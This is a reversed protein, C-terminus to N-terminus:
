LVFGRSFSNISMNLGKFRGLTWPNLYTSRTTWSNQLNLTTFNKRAILLSSSFHWSIMASCPSGFNRLDSLPLSIVLLCKFRNQVSFLVLYSDVTGSVASCIAIASHALRVITSIDLHRNDWALNCLVFQNPAIAVAQKKLFRTLVLLSDFLEFSFNVPVFLWSSLNFNPHVTKRLFRWIELLLSSSFSDFSVKWAVILLTRTVRQLMWM